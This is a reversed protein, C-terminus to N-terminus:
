YKFSGVLADSVKTMAAENAQAYTMIVEVRGLTMQNYPMKLKHLMVYELDSDVKLVNNKTFYKVKKYVKGGLSADALLTRTHPDPIFKKKDLTLYKALDKEKHGTLKIEIKSYEDNTFRLTIKTSSSDKVYCNAPVTFTMNNGFVTKATQAQSLLTIITALLLLILYKTKTM